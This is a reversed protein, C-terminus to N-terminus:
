DRARELITKDPLNETGLLSNEFWTEMAYLRRLFSSHPDMIKNVFGPNALKVGSYGYILIQDDMPMLLLDIELDGEDVIKLLFTIVSRNRLSFLMHQGDYRYEVTYYDRGLNAEKMHIDFTDFTPISTVISDELAKNKGDVRYVDEFLVRYREKTRSWYQVGNIRSVQRVINYLLLNRDEKSTPLNQPYPITFFAEIIVDPEIESHRKEIESALPVAPTYYIGKRTKGWRFLVSERNLEERENANLSSLIDEVTYHKAEQAAATFFTFGILVLLLTKIKM